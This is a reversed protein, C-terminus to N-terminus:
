FPSLFYITQVSGEADGIPVIYSTRDQVYQFNKDTFLISIRQENELPTILTHIDADTLVKPQGPHKCQHVKADRELSRKLWTLVNSARADSVLKGAHNTALSYASYEFGRIETDISGVFADGMTLGAGMSLLTTDFWTIDMKDILEKLKREILYACEVAKIKAQDTKDYPTVDLLKPKYVNFLILAGDGVTKDMVGDQSIAAARIIRHFERVFEKYGEFHQDSRSNASFKTSNRLDINLTIVEKAKKLVLANTDRKLLKEVGQQREERGFHYRILESQTSESASLSTRTKVIVRRFRLAESAMRCFLSLCWSEDNLLSQFYRNCRAWLVASPKETKLLGIPFGFDCVVDAERVLDHAEPSPEINSDPFDQWKDFLMDNGLVGVKRDFDTLDKQLDILAVPKKNNVIWNTFGLSRPKPWPRGSPLQYWKNESRDWIHSDYGLSTAAQLTANYISDLTTTEEINGVCSLLDLTQKLAVNLDRFLEIQRVALAAASAFQHLLLIHDDKFAKAKNSELNLVGVIKGQIILPCAIESKVVMESSPINCKIYEPRSKYTHLEAYKPVDEVLYIRGTRAVYEVIGEREERSKTIGSPDSAVIQVENNNNVTSLTCLVNTPHRHLKILRRAQRVIYDYILKQNKEIQQSVLVQALKQRLNLNMSRLRWAEPPEIRPQEALTLLCNDLWVKRESIIRDIRRQDPLPSQRYNVFIVVFTDRMIPLSLKGKPAKNPLIRIRITSSIEERVAFSEEALVRTALPSHVSKKFVTVGTPTNEKNLECEMRIRQDPLTLSGHMQCKFKFDGVKHFLWYIDSFPNYFYCTLNDGGLATLLERLGRKAIIMCSEDM